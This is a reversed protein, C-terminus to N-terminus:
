SSVPSAKPSRMPPSTPESYSWQSECAGPGRLTSTIAWEGTLQRPWRLVDSMVHYVAADPAPTHSEPVLRHIGNRALSLTFFIVSFRKSARPLPRAPELWGDTDFVAWRTVGVVVVVM